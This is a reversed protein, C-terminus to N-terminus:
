CNPLCSEYLPAPSLEAPALRNSRQASLFCDSLQEHFTSPLRPSAASRAAAAANLTADHEVSSPRKRPILMFFAEEEFAELVSQLRTLDM